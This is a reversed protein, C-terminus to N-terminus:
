RFDNEGRGRKRGGRNGAGWVEPVLLPPAPDLGMGTLRWRRRQWGYLGGAEEPDLCDLCVYEGRISVNCLKCLFCPHCRGCNRALAM